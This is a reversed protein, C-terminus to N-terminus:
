YIAKNYIRVEDITGNFYEGSTSGARGIALIGSTKRVPGNVPIPTADEKGDVFLRIHSGNYLGTVYYWNNETLITNGFLNFIDGTTNWVPFYMIKSTPIDRIQWSRTAGDGKFLIDDFGNFDNKKFLFQFSFTGTFNWVEKNGLDVYDNNGDFSLASGYKGKVWVHTDNAYQGSEEFSYSAVPRTIPNPSQMDAQIEEPTLSKNYIRVEDITGNFFYNYGGALDSSGVGVNDITPTSIDTSDTDVSVGDLYLEYDNSARKVYAVHHWKDDNVIQSSNLFAFISGDYIVVNITKASPDFFLTLYHGGIATNGEGYIIQTAIGSATSKFWSSVTCEAQNSAIANSGLDVYDDLGDFKLAKGFKGDVRQPPSDGDENAINGDKLEGDNFVEGYFTGDNGTHGATDKATNGSGEDMELCLVAQDCPDPAKKNFSIGEATTIRIDDGEKIFDYITVTGTDGPKVVDSSINFNAPEDNLYVAFGTLDSQGINRVYVDSISISEIKMNALMGTATREIVETGTETTSTVIGTFFTYSLAAIAVVIMLILIIVIIASIGRM